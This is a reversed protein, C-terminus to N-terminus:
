RNLENINFEEMEKDLWKDCSSEVRCYPCKIFDGKPIYPRLPSMRGKYRPRCSGCGCRSKKNCNPCM